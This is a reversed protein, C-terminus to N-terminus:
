CNGVGPGTNSEGGGMPMPLLSLPKEARGLVRGVGWETWEATHSLTRLVAWTQESMSGIRGRLLMVLLLPAKTVFGIRVANNHNYIRIQCM